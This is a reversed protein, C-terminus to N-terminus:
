DVCDADRDREVGYDTHSVTCVYNGALVCYFFQFAAVVVLFGMFVDILKVRQPTQKLYNQWIANAIALPDQSNRV